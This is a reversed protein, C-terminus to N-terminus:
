WISVRAEKEGGPRQRQGQKGLISPALRGWKSDLGMPERLGEEESPKSDRHQRLDQQMVSGPGAPGCEWCGRCSPGPDTQNLHHLIGAEQMWRLGAFFKSIIQGALIDRLKLIERRGASGGVTHGQSHKLWLRPSLKTPTPASCTFVRGPNQTRQYAWDAGAAGPAAGRQDGLAWVCRGFPWLWQILKRHSNYCIVM